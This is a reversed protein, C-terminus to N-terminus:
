AKTNKAVFEVTYTGSKLGQVFLKGTRNTSFQVKLEPEKANIFYGVELDFPQGNSKMFTATAM